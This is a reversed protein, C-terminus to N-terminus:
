YRQPGGRPSSVPQESTQIRASQAAVDTLLEALAQLLNGLKTLPPGSSSRFRATLDTHM